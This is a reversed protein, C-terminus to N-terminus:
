FDRDLINQKRTGMIEIILEMIELIIM